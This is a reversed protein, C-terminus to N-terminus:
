KKKKFNLVKKSIGNKLNICKVGYLRKIKNIELKSVSTSLDSNNFVFNELKKSFFAIFKSSMMKRVEYEISHSHYIIKTSPSFIKVLILTIFSYGIWSPGEIVLLRKKTKGLYKLIKYILFPICIIKLIPKEKFIKISFLNNKYINKNLHSIQFLKKQGPWCLFLSRIVEASGMNTPFVPFFCIFATKM